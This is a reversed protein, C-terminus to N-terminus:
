KKKSKRTYRKQTEREVDIISKYQSYNGTFKRTAQPTIEIIHTATEDIFGRHHSVYLISQKAHKIYDVVIHIM